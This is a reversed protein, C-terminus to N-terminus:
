SYRDAKVARGGGRRGSPCFSQLFSELGRRAAECFVTPRGGPSEAEEGVEQSSNGDCPCGVLRQDSRIGASTVCVAATATAM